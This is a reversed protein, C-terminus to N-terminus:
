GELVIEFADCGQLQDILSKVAYEAEKVGCFIADGNVSKGNIGWWDSPSTLMDVTVTQWTPKIPAYLNGEYGIQAKIDGNKTKIVRYNM